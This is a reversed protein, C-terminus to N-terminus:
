MIVIIILFPSQAWTASEDPGGLQRLDGTLRSCTPRQPDPLFWANISGRMGGDWTVIHGHCHCTVDNSGAQGM